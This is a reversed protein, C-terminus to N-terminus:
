LQERAAAEHRNLQTARLHLLDRVVTRLREQIAQWSYKSRVRAAGARAIREAWHEDKWIASIAETFELPTDALLVHEGNVLEIGEAGISTSIVLRASSLAELIKLRTGGGARLPVIVADAQQITQAIDDVLGLLQVHPLQALAARVETAKGAGAVRVVFPVGSTMLEAHISDAFYRMADINPPYDLHGFFLLELKGSRKKAPWAVFTNTDVGNPVVFTKASPALALVQPLEDESCVLTAAAESFVKSEARRLTRSVAFSALGSASFRNLARRAMAVSDINHTDIVFPLTSVASRSHMEALFAGAYVVAAARTARAAECVKAQLADTFHRASLASRNERVTRWLTVPLTTTVTPACLALEVGTGIADRFSEIDSVNAPLPAVMVVSWEAALGELVAFTRRKWGDDLPWPLRNAVYILTDTTTSADSM